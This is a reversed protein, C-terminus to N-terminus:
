NDANIEETQDLPKALQLAWAPAVIKSKVGTVQFVLYKKFFRSKGLTINEWPISMSTWTACLLFLNPALHLHTSDVTVRVSLGLNFIGISCTQFSRSIAEQQAGQAPYKKAIGNWVVRLATFSGAMMIIVYASIGFTVWFGTM